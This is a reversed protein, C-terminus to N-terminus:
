DLYDFTAIGIVDGESTQMFAFRPMENFSFDSYLSPPKSVSNFCEITKPCDSPCDGDHVDVLPAFYVIRSQCFNPFSTRVHKLVNTCQLQDEDSEIKALVHSHSDNKSLTEELAERVKDEDCIENRPFLTQHCPDLTVFWRQTEIETNLHLLQMLETATPLDQLTWTKQVSSQPFFLVHLLGGGAGYYGERGSVITCVDELLRGAISEKAPISVGEFHHVNLDQWQKLTFEPDILPFDADSSWRKIKTILEPHPPAETM